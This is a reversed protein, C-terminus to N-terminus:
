VLGPNTKWALLPSSARPTPVTDWFQNIQTVSRMNQCPTWYSGTHLSLPPAAFQTVLNGPSFVTMVKLVGHTVMSTVEHLNWPSKASSGNLVGLFGLLVLLFGDLFGTEFWFDREVDSVMKWWGNSDSGLFQGLLSMGRALRQTSSPKAKALAKSSWTTAPAMSFNWGSRVTRPAARRRTSPTSAFFPHVPPPISLSPIYTINNYIYINM